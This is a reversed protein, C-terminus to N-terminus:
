RYWQQERVTLNVKGRGLVVGQSVPGARRRVGRGRLEAAEFSRFGGAEFIEVGPPVGTDRITPLHTEM